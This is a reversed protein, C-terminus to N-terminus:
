KAVFGSAGRLSIVYFGDMDGIIPYSTGADILGVRKADTSPMAYVATEAAPSYTQPDVLVYESRVYGEYRGGNPANYTIWYWSNIGDRIEFTTGYPLSTVIDASTAPNRRMTLLECLVFGRGVVAPYGNWETDNFNASNDVSPAGDQSETASIYGFDFYYGTIVEPNSVIWGERAVGWSDTYAIKTWVIPASTSFRTDFPSSGNTTMSDLVSYPDGIDLVYDIEIGTGDSTLIFVDTANTMIDALGTSCIMCALTVVLLIALKKM